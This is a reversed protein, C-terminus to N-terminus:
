NTAFGRAKGDKQNSFYPDSMAVLVSRSGLYSRRGHAVQMNDVLLVDNKQWSFAVQEMEFATRILNLDKSAIAEGDGYVANRPLGDLGFVDIMNQEHEPGLSSVHFLHAQNFWLEIGLRPHIATGQCTQATRLNDGPGWAFEIDHEVCFREVEARSQTQFVETWPLDVGYTYNRIYRVGRRRFQELLKPGIRETVKVVDALPTEGGKLAPQDCFFALLMPWCRQYANECHLPIERDAPYVTATFVRDGVTKRPTSRYVYDLRGGSLSDVFACFSDRDVNFGRLLIAGYRLLLDEIQQKANNAIELLEYNTTAHEILHPLRSGAIISHHQIPSHDM